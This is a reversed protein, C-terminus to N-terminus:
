CKKLLKSKERNEINSIYYQNGYQNYEKFIYNNDDLLELYSYYPTVRNGKADIIGYMPDFLPFGIEFKGSVEFKAYGNKFNNILLIQNPGIPIDISLQELCRGAYDVVEANNLNDYILVKDKDYLCFNEFDNRTIQFPVWLNGRKTDFDYILANFIYPPVDDYLSDDINIIESHNSISTNDWPLGFLEYDYNKNIIRNRYIYLDGNSNQSLESIVYYNEFCKVYVADSYTDAIKKMDPFHYISYINRTGNFKYTILCDDEFKLLKIDEKGLDLREIDHGINDYKWLEYRYYHMEPCYFSALCDRSDIKIIFYNDKTDVIEGPTYFKERMLNHYKMYFAWYNPKMDINNNM